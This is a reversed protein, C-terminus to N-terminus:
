EGRAKEIGHAAEVLRVFAIVEVTASRIDYKPYAAKYVETIRDVSLPQAVPQSSQTADKGAKYAAKMQNSNFFPVMKATAPYLGKFSVGAPLHLAPEPLKFKM